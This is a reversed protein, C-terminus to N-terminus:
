ELPPLSPIQVRNQDTQINMRGNEPFHDNKVLVETERRM